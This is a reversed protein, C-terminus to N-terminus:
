TILYYMAASCSNPSNPSVVCCKISECNFSFDQSVVSGEDVTQYVARFDVETPSVLSYKSGKSEAWTRSISATLDELSVHATKSGSSDPNEVSQILVSTNSTIQVVYDHPAAGSRKSARSSIFESAPRGVLVSASKFTVRYIISSDTSSEKTVKECEEDYLSASPSPPMAQLGHM